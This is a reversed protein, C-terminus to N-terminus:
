RNGQSLNTYILRSTGGRAFAELGQCNPGPFILDNLVVEGENAYVEVSNTDVFVQLRLRGATLSLPAEHRAAFQNHFSADGARTRDVFVTKRAADYGIITQNVGGKRLRIGFESAAGAEFEAELAFAEATGEAWALNEEALPMDEWVPRAKLFPTIPQQFLRLGRPTRRLALRRPLTMMESKGQHHAPWAYDWHNMWALFIRENDPPNAFTIGAYDDAGYSTPYGGPQNDASSPIFQRGDFQGIFYRMKSAGPRGEIDGPIIFSANLVWRQNNEDGDLPLAFLDPCEWVWNDPIWGGGYSSAFTWSKLDASHYFQVRNGATVVMVWQGIPAHWFIKPDRFDPSSSVLVPNGSFKTWTRGRDCSFALSQRQATEVQHTFAAVLGRDGAFFGSTDHEDVAVSGSWISGLEDPYLAIPLHEWHLLDRSIAHGWHQRTEGEPLHQYFMHWEGEFYILGNPDNMWGSPPSFHYTM